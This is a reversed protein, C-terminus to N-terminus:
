AAVDPPSTLTASVPLAMAPAATLIVGGDAPKPLTGTPVTLAGIMKVTLLGAPAGGVLLRPKNRDLGESKMRDPVQMPATRPLPCAQVMPTRKLGCCAPALMAVSVTAAVM